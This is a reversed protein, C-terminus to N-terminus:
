KNNDKIKQFLSKEIPTMPCVKLFPFTISEQHSFPRLRDKFKSLHWYPRFVIDKCADKVSYHGLVFARQLYIICNDFDGKLAYIAAQHYEKNNSSSLIQIEKELEKKQGSILFAFSKNIRAPVLGSNLELARDAFRIADEHMNLYLSYYSRRLYHGSDQWPNPPPEALLDKALKHTPKTALACELLLDWAVRAISSKKAKVLEKLPKIAEKHKSDQLLFICELLPLGEEKLNKIADDSDGKELEWDALGIVTLADNIRTYIENLDNCDKSLIPSKISDRCALLHKTRSLATKHPSIIGTPLSALTHEAIEAMFEDFEDIEVWYTRDNRLLQRLRRSPISSSRLCWYIGNRFYNESRVLIDLLDMISQDNGSYGLVILGYEKAFEIFKERMNAELSQLESSTNKISDYLFDGHLKIVKPRDSMLRVSALGSDHACVMPRLNETFSYCADNILDDFNTTFIVNFLKAEILSTLYAYGWSPKSNKTADEIYARRQSPQDYVEEFLRSYKDDVNNWDQKDLWETFNETGKRSVFLKKQWESIMESASKVGSSVSAGAGLFLSFESTNDVRTKILNVLHEKSRKNHSFADSFTKFNM